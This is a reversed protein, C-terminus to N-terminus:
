MNRFAETAQDERAIRDNVFDRGVKAIDLAQLQATRRLQDPTVDKGDELTKVLDSLRDTPLTM